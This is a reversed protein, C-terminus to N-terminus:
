FCASPQRVRVWNAAWTLSVTLDDLPPLSEATLVAAYADIDGEKPSPGFRISGTTGVSFSSWRQGSFPFRSGSFASTLVPPHLM